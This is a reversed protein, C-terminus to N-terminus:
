LFEAGVKLPKFSLRNVQLKMAVEHVLRCGNPIVIQHIFHAINRGRGTIGLTLRKKFILRPKYSQFLEIESQNIHFESNCDALKRDRTINGAICVKDAPKHLLGGRGFSLDYM